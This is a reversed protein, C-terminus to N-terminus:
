GQVNFKPKGTAVAEEPLYLGKFTFWAARMAKAAELNLEAAYFMQRTVRRAAQKQSTKFRGNGTNTVPTNNLNQRLETATVSLRDYVTFFLLRGNECLQQLETSSYAGQIDDVNAM